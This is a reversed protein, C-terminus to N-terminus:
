TLSALDLVRFLETCSAHTTYLCYNHTCVVEKSILSPMYGSELATRLFSASCVVVFFSSPLDSNAHM